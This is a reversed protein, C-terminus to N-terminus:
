LDFEAAWPMEGVLGWECLIPHLVSNVNAWSKSTSLESPLATHLVIECTMHTLGM